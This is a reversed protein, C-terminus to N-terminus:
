ERLVKVEEGDRRAETAAAIVIQARADAAEGDAFVDNEIAEFLFVHPNQM